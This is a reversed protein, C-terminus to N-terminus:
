RARLNRGIGGWAVGSLNGIFIFNSAVRAAARNTHTSPKDAHEVVWVSDIGGPCIRAIAHGGTCAAMTCNSASSAVSGVTGAATFAPAVSFCIWGVTAAAHAAPAVTLMALTCANA